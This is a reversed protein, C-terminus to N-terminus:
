KNIIKPITLFLVHTRFHKNEYIDKTISKTSYLGLNRRRLFYALSDFKKYLNLKIYNINHFLMNIKIM